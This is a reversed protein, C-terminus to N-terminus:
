DSMQCKCDLEASRYSREIPAAICTVETLGIGGSRTCDGSGGIGGASYHVEFHLVAKLQM